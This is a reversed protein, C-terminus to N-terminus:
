ICARFIKNTRQYRQVSDYLRGPLRYGNGKVLVHQIIALRVSSVETRRYLKVKSANEPCSETCTIKYVANSCQPNVADPKNPHPIQLPFKPAFCKDRSGTRPPFTASGDPGRRKHWRPVDRACHTLLPSDSAYYMHTVYGDLSSM